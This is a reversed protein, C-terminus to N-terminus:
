EKVKGNEIERRATVENLGALIIEEMIDIYAENTLMCPVFYKEIYREIQDCAFDSIELYESM